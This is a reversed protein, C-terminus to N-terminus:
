GFVAWIVVKRDAGVKNFISMKRRRGLILM